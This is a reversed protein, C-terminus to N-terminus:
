SDHKESYLLSPSFPETTLIAYTVSQSLKNSKADKPMASTNRCYIGGINSLAVKELWYQAILQRLVQAFLYSIRLFVALM